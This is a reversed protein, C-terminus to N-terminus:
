IPMKLGPLTTDAESKGEKLATKLVDLRVEVAELEDEITEKKHELNQVQEKIQQETLEDSLERVVTYKGNKDNKVIKTFDKM